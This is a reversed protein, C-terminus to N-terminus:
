LLFLVIKSLMHYGNTMQFYQRFCESCIAPPISNTITCNVYVTTAASFWALSATCNQYIHWSDELTVHVSQKPWPTAGFLEGYKLKEFDDIIRHNSPSVLNQLDNLISPRRLSIDDTAVDNSEFSDCLTLLLAFLTLVVTGQRRIVAFTM